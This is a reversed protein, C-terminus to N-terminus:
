LESTFSYSDAFREYKKVTLDYKRRLYAPKQVSTYYIIYVYICIYIYIYSYLTEFLVNPGSSQLLLLNAVSGGKRVRVSM